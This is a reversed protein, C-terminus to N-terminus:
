APTGSEEIYVEAYPGQMGTSSSVALQISLVDDAALSTSAFAGDKVVRDADAHTIGITGSLITTGNKKLDFTVSSSTGTDNCMARFLKVTAAAPAVYVVEERAVPTAAIALDFNTFAKIVHIQKSSQLRDASANSFNGDAVTGSDLIITGSFKSAM